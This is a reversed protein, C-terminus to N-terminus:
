NRNFAALTEVVGTAKSVPAGAPWTLRLNAYVMGTPSTPFSINLQYRSTTTLSASHQGAGDLYLTTNGGFTIGYQPSTTSTKPTARMDATVASLINSATTSSTSNNNTQTAIPLLGFIALLAFGAIGLALTVEALSFARPFSYQIIM